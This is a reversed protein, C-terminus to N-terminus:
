ETVAIEVVAEDEIRVAGLMLQYLVQLANNKDPRRDISATLGSIGLEIADSHFAVPYSYTGDSYTEQTQLFTFGGFQFPQGDVLAKKQAYDMNVVEDILLLDEKCVANIHMYRDSLPVNNEDMIKGAELIKSKTLGTGGHAIKQDSPLAITGSSSGYIGGYRASGRLAAIITADKKRNVAGLARRNYADLPDVLMKWRDPTDLMKAFTFYTMDAWRTDHELDILQTDAHRSAVETMEEYGLREVSFAAGDVGMRVRVYNQLVSIEQSALLKITDGFQAVFWEPISADM